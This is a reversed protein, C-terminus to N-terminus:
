AAEGFREVRWQHREPRAGKVHCLPSWFSAAEEHPVSLWARSNVADRLRSFQALGHIGVNWALDVLARQPGLPFEEFGPYLVALGPLFERALRDAALQYISGDTLEIRPGTTTRYASAKLGKPMAMVRHFDSSIEPRTAERAAFRFPISMAEDVDHILNGIGVTCYGLTDRYMHAVAGEWRVLDPVFTLLQDNTM